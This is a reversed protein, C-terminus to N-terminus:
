DTVEERRSAGSAALVVTIAIILSADLRRM